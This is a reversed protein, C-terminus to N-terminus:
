INIDSEIISKVSPQNSVGIVAEIEKLREICYDIHIVGDTSFNKLDRAICNKALIAEFKKNQRM